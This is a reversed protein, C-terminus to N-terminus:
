KITRALRFGIIGYQGGPKYGGRSASRCHSGYGYVWCGGRIVRFQGSSAGQPDGLPSRSYYDKDYWDQCWEWVSGLMDYLNWNNPKKQGVEHTTSSSNDSYWAYSGLDSSSDGFFYASSSGARCAYEWEAETPLRLEDGAKSLFEQCNNFSVNEVPLRDSGKFWSPNNGMLKQWDGQKVEYKGMYFPTTIRVKHVPGEDSDRGSESSPSGMMFEGAPIFVMEIGTKTHIIEKPYGTNTYPEPTAGDKARFGEPLEVVKEGAAPVSAGKRAKEESIALSSALPIILSLIFTLYVIQRNGM